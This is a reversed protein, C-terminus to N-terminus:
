RRPLSVPVKFRNCAVNIIDILWLLIVLGWILVLFMFVEWLDGTPMIKLVNTVVAYVIGIAFFISFFIGKKYRGVYYYQAGAFGLFITLLLLKLKSVDSPMGKRMLVRDNDGEAYATKAEKNTASEFKHYNLQCGPCIITESPVKMDCRPCRKKLKINM